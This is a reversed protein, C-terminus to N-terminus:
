SFLRDVLTCKHCALSAFTYKCDATSFFPNKKIDQKHQKSLPKNIKNASVLCCASVYLVTLLECSNHQNFLKNMYTSQCCNNCCWKTHQWYAFLVTNFLCDSSGLVATAVIVDQLWVWFSIRLMRCIVNMSSIIFVLFCVAFFLIGSLFDFVERSSFFQLLIWICHIVNVYFLLKSAVSVKWFTSM